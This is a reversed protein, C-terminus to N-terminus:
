PSSVKFKAIVYRRIFTKLASKQLSGPYSCALSKLHHQVQHPAKWRTFTHFNSLSLTLTLTRFHFNSLSLKFTFSSLGPPDRWVTFTFTHLNIHSLSLKFTLTQFHFIVFSAHLRGCQSLTFTCFQFNSLSLHCVQHPAKWVRTAELSRMQCRNANVTKIIIMMMSMYSSRLWHHHCRHNFHECNSEDPDHNCIRTRGQAFLNQFFYTLDIFILFIHFTHSHPTNISTHTFTPFTHM